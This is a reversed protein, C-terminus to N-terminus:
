FLYKLSLQMERNNFGSRTSSVVGFNANGLTGNPNAFQPTNFANFAEWRFQVQHGSRVRFSKALSLDVTKLGPGIVPNRPSNGYTVTARSFAATNFWRALTRDSGPLNPDQGAV